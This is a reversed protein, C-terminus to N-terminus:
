KKDKKPKKTEKKRANNGKAMLDEQLKHQPPMTVCRRASASFLPAGEQRGYGNLPHNGEV